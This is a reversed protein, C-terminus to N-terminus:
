LGGLRCRLSENIVALQLIVKHLIIQADEINEAEPMPEGIVNAFDEITALVLRTSRLLNCRFDVETLGIDKPTVVLDIGIQQRILEAGNALAILSSCPIVPRSM